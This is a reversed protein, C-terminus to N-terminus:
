NNYKYKKEYNIRGIGVGSEVNLQMWGREKDHSVFCETFVVGYVGRESNEIFQGENGGWKGDGGGNHKNLRNFYQTDTYRYKEYHEKTFAYCFGNIVNTDTKCDLIFNGAYARDSRQKSPPLIGNSVPAYVIDKNNTEKIYSIFKNISDNFWLDDNCTILIDCGNAYAVEMGKNFAGTVGEITQDDIRHYIFRDDNEPFELKTHSENDIIVIKFDHECYEIISDIQRKLYYNGKPRLNDSCHSTIIFSVKM